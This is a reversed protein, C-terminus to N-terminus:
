PVLVLPGEPSNLFIKIVTHDTESITQMKGAYHVNVNNPRQITFEIDLGNFSGSLPNGDLDSNTDHIEEGEFVGVPVNKNNADPQLDIRYDPDNEVNWTAAFAPIFVIALTEAGCSVIVFVFSTVLIRKFFDHAKM